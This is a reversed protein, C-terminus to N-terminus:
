PLTFDKASKAFSNLTVGLFIAIALFLYSATM